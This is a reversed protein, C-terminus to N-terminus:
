VRHRDRPQTPNFVHIESFQIPPRIASGDMEITRLTTKTARFNCVYLDAYIGFSFHEVGRVHGQSHIGQSRVLRIEARIEPKENKTDYLWGQVNLSGGQVGLNGFALMSANPPPSSWDNLHVEQPAGPVSLPYFSKSVMDFIGATQLDNWLTVNFIASLNQTGTDTTVLKFDPVALRVKEVGLGTGTRIWDQASVLSAAILLFLMSLIVPYKKMGPSEMIHLSAGITSGSSSPSMVAQTSRLCRALPISANCRGCRQYIWRRFAAPSNWAYTKRSGWARSRLIFTFGGRPISTPIWKM